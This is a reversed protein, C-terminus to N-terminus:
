PPAGCSDKEEAQTECAGYAARAPPSRPGSGSHATAPPPEPDPRPSSCIPHSGSAAIAGGFEDVISRSTVASGAAPDEGQRGLWYALTSGAIGAGVVLVSRVSM